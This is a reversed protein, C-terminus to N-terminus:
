LAKALFENFEHRIANFNTEFTNISDRMKPHDNVVRRDGAVPNEDVRHELYNEHDNVGHRLEDINNKQIIMSNQFHEVQALIEKSTNKAAVEAIRKKMVDIEDTYFDLRKLWDTHESHLENIPKTNM